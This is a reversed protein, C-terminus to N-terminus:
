EAIILPMTKFWGNKRVKVFYTGEAIDSLDVETQGKGFGDKIVRGSQDSLMYYYENEVDIVVYDNGPNPYLLFHAKENEKSADIGSSGGYGDVAFSVNFSFVEAASKGPLLTGIKYVLSIAKDAVLVSDEATTFGTGDWLASGDRNAFGGTTCRWDPGYAELIVMNEWAESQVAKVIVSDDSMGSQSVITNTTEYGWGISQNNDPDLNRYYYIDDIASGWINEVAVTTTYYLLNKQMEYVITVEIFDVVQGVWVVRVSDSTEWYDMIFGPIEHMPVFGSGANNSYEAGEIDFGFGNEPNGPTFFDGDYNVWGDMQANSVFGFYSGTVVGGRSHSGPLNTTGEHGYEDIGVEIYDGIMYANGGVMQAIGNTFIFVLFISFISKMTPKMTLFKYHGPYVYLFFGSMEPCGTEMATNNYM